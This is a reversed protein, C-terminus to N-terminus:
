WGRTGQFSRCSPLSGKNRSYRRSHQFRKASQCHRTVAGIGQRTAYEVRCVPDVGDDYGGLGHVGGLHFSCVIVEAEPVDSGYLEEKEGAPHIRLAGRLPASARPLWKQESIRMPPLSSLLSVKRQVAHTKSRAYGRWAEVASAMVRSLSVVVGKVIKIPSPQSLHRTCKLAPVLPRQHAGFVFFVIGGVRPSAVCDGGM